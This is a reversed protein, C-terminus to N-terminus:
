EDSHKEARHKGLGQSNQFEKGCAECQHQTAGAMASILLGIPILMRRGPGCRILGAATDLEIAGDLNADLETTLRDGIRVQRTLTARTILMM